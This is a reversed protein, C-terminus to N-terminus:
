ADLRERPFSGGLSPSFAVLAAEAAQQRSYRTYRKLDHAFPRSLKSKTTECRRQVGSEGGCYNEFSEVIARNSGREFGLTAERAVCTAM